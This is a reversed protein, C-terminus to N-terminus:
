NSQSTQLNMQVWEQILKESFLITASGQYLYTPVLVWEQILNETFFNTATSSQTSGYTCDLCEIIHNSILRELCSTITSQGAHRGFEFQQHLYLQDLLTLYLEHVLKPFTCGKQM